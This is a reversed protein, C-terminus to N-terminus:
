GHSLVRRMAEEAIEQATAQTDALVMYNLMTGRTASSPSLLIIGNNPSEHHILLDDLKKCLTATEIRKDKLKEQVILLGEFSQLAPSSASVTMPISVGGWRGNCEIWHIKERGNDGACIVADFSCRGYYGLHQLVAAIKLADDQLAHLIPASLSARCAGAFASREGIVSQQFVGQVIPKGERTEPIWLQVSPSSTVDDDWVGVLVPYDDHWGAAHLRDQLFGRIESLTKDALLGTSVRVNGASGASDPVKVVVQSATKGIHSVLAAAAAPGYASMTPPTADKGLVSCTLQSFWLKDNIRTTARPSPGCVHVVQQAAEGIAQALRWTNGTTLYSKLTLGGNQLAIEALRDVLLYSGLAQKSVPLINSPAMQVFTVNQFGLYRVLYSEFDIDRKRVLVIDNPRALHSMRYDLLTEQASTLLNIESQDGILVSPGAATGQRVFPGFDLSGLLAPEDAVLRQAIATYDRM